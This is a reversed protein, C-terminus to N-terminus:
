LLRNQCPGRPPGWCGMSSKKLALVATHVEINTRKTIVYHRGGSSVPISGSAPCKNGHSGLGPRVTTGAEAVVGGGVGHSGTM